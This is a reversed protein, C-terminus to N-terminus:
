SPSTLDGSVDQSGTMIARLREKEQEGGFICDISESALVHIFQRDLNFHTSALRYEQSLPSGFVGVDDTQSDDAWKIKCLWQVFSMVGLSVKVGKVHLWKKFHHDKYGGNIMGASVNCSLCLELCLGRREIERRSEEDEWIVHGLRDPQWSLLTRLEEASASVEVEAFHLTLGLGAEKAGEFVPTFMAIEGNPRKMPDGCLDLGVILPNSLALRLTEEAQALDHRRDVSLILRTHMEQQSSEFAAIAECIISIYQEASVTPSARPTTRLELYAVGDDRFHTLVADVAYKISEEDTLLEYIYSTFLPFFSHRTNVRAAM